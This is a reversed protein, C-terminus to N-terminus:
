DNFKLMFEGFKTCMHPYLNGIVPCFKAWFPMAYALINNPPKTINSKKSLRYTSISFSKSHTNIFRQSVKSLKYCYMSSDITSSTPLTQLTQIQKQFSQSQSLSWGHPHPSCLLTCAVSDMHSLLWSATWHRARRRSCLVDMLVLNRKCVQIHIYV